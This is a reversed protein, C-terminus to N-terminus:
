ISIGSLIDDINFDLGSYGYYGSAPNFSVKTSSNSDMINGIMEILDANINSITNGTLVVGIGLIGKTRKYSPTFNFECIDYSLSLGMLTDYAEDKDSCYKIRNNHRSLGGDENLFEAVGLKGNGIEWIDVGRIPCGSASALVNSLKGMIDSNACTSQVLVPTEKKTEEVVPVISTESEESGGDGPVASAKPAITEKQCVRKTRKFEIIKTAIVYVLYSPAAIASGFMFLTILTEMNIGGIEDFM